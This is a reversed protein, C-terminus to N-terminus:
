NNETLFSKIASLAKEFGIVPLLHGAGKLVVLRSDPYKENATESYSIPVVRDRDGHIILVPKSFSCIERWPELPLADEIYRRGLKVYLARFEEPPRAPVFRAGLMSGRRADDPICLAPYCLVIREIDSEREAALLATVMGGQSCGMLTIRGSDIRERSIVYDLVFSLDDKETIISNDTSRGDSIGSGSGCFDFIFVAYGLKCLVGAYRATSLMNTGFEHSIIVAPLPDGGDPYYARGMIRLGKKFVVFKKM